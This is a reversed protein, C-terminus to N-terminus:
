QDEAAKREEQEQLERRLVKGVLTEPLEKRVEIAKPVKYPSVNTRCFERIENLLEESEKFGDKLVVYAKVRESGPKEPDPLGIVAANEVAEHEFLVDEVERPYVKFGSVILMDKKRDVIYFYG